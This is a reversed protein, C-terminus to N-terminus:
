NTLTSGVGVVANFTQPPAIGRTKDDDLHQQYINWPVYVGQEVELTVPDIATQAYCQWCTCLHLPQSKSPLRREVPIGHRLHPPM